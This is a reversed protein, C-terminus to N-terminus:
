ANGIVVVVAVVTAVAATVVVAVVVTMAAAADMDVVAVVTVATAAVMVTVHHALHTNKPKCVKQFRFSHKAVLASSAM